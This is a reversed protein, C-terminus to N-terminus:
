NLKETELQQLRAQESLTAKEKVARDFDKVDNSM